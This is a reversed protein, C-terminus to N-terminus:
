VLGSYDIVQNNLFEVEIATMACDFADDNLGNPCASAEDVITDVETVDKYLFVKGSKIEPGSNMAREVKDTNRPVAEVKCKELELEQILGVGSSKDEIYMARLPENRIGNHRDYFEKGNKRLEPASMRERVQDLLHINGAYCKGWAQFVTYDNWTNKKQATDATIFRYKLKPRVEGWRWWESNVINGGAVVPSGQYVSQWNAPLMAAMRELLFTKSKHEPFLPEENKNLAPYHCLKVRGGNEVLGLKDIMRGAPDDIHWRTNIMLLGAHEAFRAMFDDTLWDWAKGRTKPSNAENRGKLADDIIGLDLGEGNVAGDVTTNRFSGGSDTEVKFNNRLLKGIQTVVNSSGIKLDPFILKHKSKEITRQITRNARIGLAESFSAYIINHDPRKGLYWTIFDTISFSKGHQPPAVIILIPRLGAVMDNYFQQLSAALDKTFWGLKIKNANIYQRYSYFDERSKIRWYEELLDLDSTNM